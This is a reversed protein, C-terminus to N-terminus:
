MRLIRPEVLMATMGLKGTLKAVGGEEKVTKGGVEKIVDQGVKSRRVQLGFAAVGAVRLPLNELGYIVPVIKDLVAKAEMGGNGSLLSDGWDGREEVQCGKHHRAVVARVVCGVVGEKEGSWM